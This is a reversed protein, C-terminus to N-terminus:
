QKKQELFYGANDASEQQWLRQELARTNPNDRNTVTVNTPKQLPTGPSPRQSLAGYLDADNYDLSIFQRPNLTVEAM